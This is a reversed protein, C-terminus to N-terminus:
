RKILWNIIQTKKATPWSSPLNSNSKFVKFFNAKHAQRSAAAAIAQGVSGPVHMAGGRGGGMNM